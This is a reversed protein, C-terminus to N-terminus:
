GLEADATLGPVPDVFYGDLKGTLNNRVQAEGGDLRIEGHVRNNGIETQMTGTGVRIGRSWNRAPRWITNNFM